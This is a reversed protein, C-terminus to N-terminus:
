PPPLSPLWTAPFLGALPAPVERAASPLLMAAAALGTLFPRPTVMSGAALPSSCDDLGPSLRRPTTSAEAM